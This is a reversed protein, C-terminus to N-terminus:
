KQSMSLFLFQCLISTSLKRVSLISGMLHTDCLIKFFIDNDDNQAFTVASLSCWLLSCEVFFRDSRCSSFDITGVNLLLLVGQFM